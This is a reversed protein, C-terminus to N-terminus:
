VSLTCVYYLQQMPNVLMLTL